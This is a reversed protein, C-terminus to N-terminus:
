FLCVIDNVLTSVSTTINITITRPTFPAKSWGLIFINDNFWGWTAGYRYFAENMKTVCNLINQITVTGNVASCNVSDLGLFAWILSNFLTM